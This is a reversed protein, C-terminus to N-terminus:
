HYQVRQCPVYACPMFSYVMYVPVSNVEVFYVSRNTCLYFFSVKAKYAIVDQYTVKSKYFYKLIWNRPDGIHQM